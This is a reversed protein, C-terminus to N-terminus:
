GLGLKLYTVVNENSKVVTIYANNIANNKWIIAFHFQM